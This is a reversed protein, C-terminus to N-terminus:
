TRPALYDLVELEPPSQGFSTLATWIEARHHTTHNFVHLAVTWTPVSSGRGLPFPTTAESETMATLYRTWDRGVQEWIAAVSELDAYRAPDPGAQAGEGLLQEHLWSEEVDVLHVFTAFVSGDGNGGPITGPRFVDDPNAASIAEVIHPRIGNRFACLFRLVDPGSLPQDTM